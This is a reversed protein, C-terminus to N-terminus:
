QTVHLPCTVVLPMGGPFCERKGGLRLDGGGVLVRGFWPVGALPIAACCLAQGLLGTRGLQARFHGGGGWGSVGQQGCAGVRRPSDPELRKAWFPGRRGSTSPM